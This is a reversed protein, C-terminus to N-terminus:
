GKIVVEDHENLKCHEQVSTLLLLSPRSSAEDCDDVAHKMHAGVSLSLRRALALRSNHRSPFAVRYLCRVGCVVNMTAWTQILVM